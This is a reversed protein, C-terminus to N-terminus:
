VSGGSFPDVRRPRRRHQPHLSLGDVREAPVLLVSLQLKANRGHVLRRHWRLVTAPTALRHGRQAAPRRQILVAFLAPRGWDLRPQPSTRRLVTVEHRLVLLEITKSASARSLLTLSGLFRSVILYLLRLAMAVIM